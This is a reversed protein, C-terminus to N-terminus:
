NVGKSNKKEIHLCASMICCTSIISVGASLGAGLLIMPHEEFYKFTKCMLEAYVNNEENM